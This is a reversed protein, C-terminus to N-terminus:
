NLAEWCASQVDAAFILDVHGRGAIMRNNAGQLTASSVPFVINDCNSYFCVFKDRQLVGNHQELQNLAQLWPSDRRMQRGNTGHGWRALATGHHPTGITIVKHVQNLSGLSALWSRLALGGMSHGVVVPPLGTAQTVQRVVADIASAYDDISGFAPELDVAVFAHGQAQLIRMWHTWLARNCFFGHVLVMGRKGGSAPSICNPIALRFFPQWWSFVRWAALAERVWAVLWGPLGPKPTPDQRNFISSAICQMALLAPTVSAPVIFCAFATWPQYPAHRWALTWWFLLLGLTLFRQINANANNM